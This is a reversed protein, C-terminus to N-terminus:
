HFNKDGEIPKYIFLYKCIILLRETDNVLIFLAIKRSDKEYICYGYANRRQVNEECKINGWGYQAASDNYSKIYQSLKRVDVESGQYYRYSRLSPKGVLGDNILFIDFYNFIVNDVDQITNNDTIQRAPLFTFSPVDKTYSIIEQQSRLPISLREERTNDQSMLSSVVFFVIFVSIIVLIIFLKRKIAPKFM